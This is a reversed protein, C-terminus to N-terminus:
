SISAAAVTFTLGGSVSAGLAAELAAFNGDQVNASGATGGTNITDAAVFFAIVTDSVRQVYYVEAVTQLAFIANAYDGNADKLNATAFPTGSGATAKLLSLERTSFQSFPSAATASANPYFVVPRKYNAAVTTGLLSPM